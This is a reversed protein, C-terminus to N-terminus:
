KARMSPTSTTAATSLSAVRSAVKASRNLILVRNVDSSSAIAQPFEVRRRVDRRIAHVVRRREGQQRGSLMHKTFLREGLVVFLRELHRLRSFPGADDVHDVQGIAVDRRQLPGALHHDGALDACDLM